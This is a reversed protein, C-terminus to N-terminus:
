SRSSKNLLDCVEQCILAANKDLDSPDNNILEIVSDTGFIEIAEDHILRFIESEVNNRIKDQNYGRAELRDYLIATNDTRVVFVKDVQELDLYDAHICELINLSSAALVPELKDALKDEDIIHSELHDDFGSICDNEIAFKSVNIYSAEPLKPRIKDVLTSKGTGPTGCIIM